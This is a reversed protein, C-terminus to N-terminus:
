ENRGFPCIRDLNMLECVGAGTMGYIIYEKDYKQVLKMINDITDNIITTGTLLIIDSQRILEETMKNGDWIKVGWRYENINGNDLDSIKINDVGFAEILNEAIAPNFGILGVNVKGLIKLIHASIEKACNEPDEDKCHLTKEVIKMHKLVANLAAIFIAREQNTVLNFEFIDGLKGSFETPSDTFAHGKDSSIQAEIVRERGVIIPFDDRDPRGIAEEPTLTNVRVTIGADQLNSKLILKSFKV